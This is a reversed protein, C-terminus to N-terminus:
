SDQNTLQFQQILRNDIYLDVKNNPLIILKIPAVSKQRIWFLFDFSFTSKEQCLSYDFPFEQYISRNTENTNFRFAIRDMNQPIYKTLWQLNNPNIDMSYSNSNMFKIYEIFTLGESKNEIELKCLSYNKYWFSRTKTYNYMFQGIAFVFIISLPIVIVTDPLSKQMLHSILWMSCLLFGEVWLLPTIFKSANPGKSGGNPSAHSLAVAFCVIFFSMGGTVIMVISWHSIWLLFWQIGVMIIILTVFIGIKEKDGQGMQIEHINRKEALM